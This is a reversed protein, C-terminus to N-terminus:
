RMFNWFGDPLLRSLKLGLFPRITEQRLPALGSPDPPNVNRPQDTKLQLSYNGLQAATLAGLQKGDYNEAARSAASLGVLFVVAAFISYQM